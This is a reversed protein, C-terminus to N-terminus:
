RVAGALLGGLVSVAAGILVSGVVIRVAKAKDKARFAAQDVTERALSADSVNFLGGMGFAVCFHSMAQVFGLASVTAPVFLLAYWAPGLPLRALALWAVVTAFLCGWGIRFRRRIEAPGINCTGPVYTSPM